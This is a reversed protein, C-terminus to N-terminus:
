SKDGELPVKDASTNGMLLKVGGIIFLISAAGTEIYNRYEWSIEPLVIKELILVIGFGLLIYGLLKNKEKIWSTNNKGIWSVFIIDEDPPLIEASTKKLIDFFSYFWIIPIVFMFLSIDLWNGLFITFFFISMYQLGQKQLGIYMHGAGPIASFIAAMARKGSKM